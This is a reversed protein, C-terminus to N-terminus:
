LKEESDTLASRKSLEILIADKLIVLEVTDYIRLDDFIKKKIKM